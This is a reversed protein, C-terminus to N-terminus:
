LPRGRSRVIHLSNSPGASILDVNPVCWACSQNLERSKTKILVSKSRNIALFLTIADHVVRIGLPASTCGRRSCLRLVAVPAVHM